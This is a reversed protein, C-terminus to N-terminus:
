SIGIEAWHEKPIASKVAEGYQKFLRRFHEFNSERKVKQPKRDWPRIDSTPKPTYGKSRKEKKKLFQRKLDGHEYFHLFKELTNVKRKWFPDTEAWAKAEIMESSLDVKKKEGEFDEKSLHKSTVASTVETIADTSTGISAQASTGISAQTSDVASVEFNEDNTFFNYNVEYWTKRPTGKLTIKIVGLERLKKKSRRFSEISILLDKAFDKDTKYFMKGMRDHWYIVQALVAAAQYDGKTIKLYSPYVVAVPHKRISDLLKKISMM